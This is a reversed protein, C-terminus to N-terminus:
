AAARSGSWSRTPAPRRPRPRSGTASARWPWSSTPGTSTSTTRGCAGGRCRRTRTAGCCRRRCRSGRRRPHRAISFPFARYWRLAPGFAGGGVIEERFRAVDDSTMGSRRLARDFAGPKRAGLEPLLPLQFFLIYWAKLLQPTTLASRLYAAPHPVSIVTLTRVLDPRQMAVVWSNAAGLDHGVLHVPGGIQEILAVVDAALHGDRLRAPTPAARGALLRAPGDGRHPLRARAPAAGGGALVHQARPLRAAAGRGRRRGPGRRLRRLDARRARAHSLRERNVRRTATMAGHVLNYVDRKPVGAQKAVEVIADKRSM